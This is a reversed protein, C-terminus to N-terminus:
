EIIAKFLGHSDPSFYYEKNFDSDANKSGFMAMDNPTKLGMFIAEFAEQLRVGEGSVIQDNSLSVKHWSM